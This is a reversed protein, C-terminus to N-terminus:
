RTLKQRLWGGKQANNLRNLELVARAQGIRQDILDRYIRNAIKRRKVGAGADFFAEIFSLIPEVIPHLRAQQPDGQNQMSRQFRDEILALEAQFVENQAIKTHKVQALTSKVLASCLVGFDQFRSLTRLGLQSQQKDDQALQACAQHCLEWAQWRYIFDLGTGKINQVGMMRNLVGPPTAEVMHLILAEGSIHADDIRVLKQEFWQRLQRKVQTELLTRDAATARQISQQIEAYQRCAHLDARLHSQLAALLAADLSLIAEPLVEPDALLAQVMADSPAVGLGTLMVQLRAQVLALTLCVRMQTALEQWHALADPVSHHAPWFVLADMKERWAEDIYGCLGQLNTGILFHQDAHLDYVLMNAFSRSRAIRDARNNVVTTLWVGPEDQYAQAAFGMRVWNNLCGLRENASMGNILALRRSRISAAPYSKLVGLDPIVRDAIEKLVYNPALGLADAMKLVLAINSPHEEYPFRALVDRTLLGADLWNVSDLRTQRQQASVQLIPLMQEETTILHTKPPIFRTMVEPINYGAPGQLDEHDPYTNTITAIDDKMWQQQLIDIYSPTLGMCEWLFVQSEVADSWQLLSAQEWISAKDYPRFLFMERMQGFRGAYLFMAECGTTKSVLSVGLANFLAAKMRETGSKGRTGWGGIVLPIAQRARRIRYNLWAHKGLFLACSIALFLWLEWLRNEYLSFFYNVFDM